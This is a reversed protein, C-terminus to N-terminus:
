LLLERTACPRLIPPPPPPRVLHLTAELLAELHKLKEDRQVDFLVATVPGAIVTNLRGDNWLGGGGAELWKARSRGGRLIERVRDRQDKNPDTKTKKKKPPEEALAIEAARKAFGLMEVPLYPRYGAAEDAAQLALMQAETVTDVLTPIVWVEECGPISPEGHAESCLNFLAMLRHSGKCVLLSGSSDEVVAVEVPHSAKFVGKSAASAGASSGHAGHAAAGFAAEYHSVLKEDQPLRRAPPTTRITRWVLGRAAGSAGRPRVRFCYQSNHANCLRAQKRAYFLELMKDAYAEKLGQVSM